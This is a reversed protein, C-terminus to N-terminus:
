FSMEVQFKSNYVVMEDVVRDKWTEEQLMCVECPGNDADRYIGIQPGVKGDRFVRQYYICGCDLSYFKLGTVDEPYASFIQSALWKVKDPSPTNRQCDPYICKRKPKVPVNKSLYEPQKKPSKERKPTPNNKRHKLEYERQAIKRCISKKCVVPTRGGNKPRVWEFPKECIKCIM